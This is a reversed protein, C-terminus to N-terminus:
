LRFRGGWTDQGDGDVAAERVIKFDEFGQDRRGDVCGLGVAGGGVEVDEEVEVAGNEERRPSRELCPGEGARLVIESGALYM